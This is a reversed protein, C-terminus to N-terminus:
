RLDLKEKLEGNKSLFGEQHSVDNLTAVHWGMEGTRRNPKRKLISLGTTDFDVTCDTTEYYGKLTQERNWAWHICMGIKKAHGIQVVCGAKLSEIFAFAERVEEELQSRTKVTVGPPLYDEDFGHRIAHMIEKHVPDDKRTGLLFEPKEIENFVPNPPVIPLHLNYAIYEALQLARPITSSVVLDPMGALSGIRHLILSAEVEGKETIRAKDGLHIGEADGDKDPHRVLIWTDAM